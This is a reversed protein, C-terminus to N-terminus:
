TSIGAGMFVVGGFFLAWTLTVLGQAMAAPAGLHELGRVHAAASTALALPLGGFPVCGLLMPIFAYGIVSSVRALVDPNLGMARLGLRYGAGVFVAFGLALALGIGAGQGLSGAGPIFHWWSAGQVAGGVLIALGGVHPRVVDSGERLRAFFDSPQLFLRSM